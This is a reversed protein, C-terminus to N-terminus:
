FPVEQELLGTGRARGSLTRCFEIADIEIKEGGTGEIFVGGAPGGLRLTFPHGHRRAWEAVVDAVIRGDHEQTARFERGTARAIDVRHMWCDRTLIVDLLYDLRWKEPVGGVEQKMKMRRLPKPVNRRARSARPGLEAIRDLLISPALENRDRVQVATLGDIFPGDGAAKKAGSMQHLFERKSSFGEMMGLVHAVMARVDWAPCDTRRSWDEPGLSRLLDAFHEYEVRSIRAAEDREIARVAEVPTATGIM